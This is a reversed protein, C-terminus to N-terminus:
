LSPSFQRPPNVGSMRSPSPAPAIGMQQFTRSCSTRHTRHPGAEQLEGLGFDEVDLTKLLEIDLTTSLGTARRKEKISEIRSALRRTAKEFYTRVGRANGFKSKDEISEFYARSAQKAAYTLKYQYKVALGELIELMETPSYDEFTVYTTFRSNLGENSKIFKEIKDAYGAVIVIFSDRRNELVSVLTTIAERGYDVNSDSDVLAYIEDIFLVGGQAENCKAQVMQATEGVYKGVIDVRNAEVLKDTPIIGIAHYLKAIMRAVTTKGTGPSGKFVMHYSGRVTELGKDKRDRANIYVDILEYIQEKVTELGTLKELEILQSKLSESINSRCLIRIERNQALDYATSHESNQLNLNAGHSILLRVLNLYGFNAACILATNGRINQANLNVGRTNLLMNAIEIDGIASALILPTNNEPDRTNMDADERLFRQAAVMDKRLVAQLLSYDLLIKVIKASTAYSKNATNSESLIKRAWGLADLGHKSDAINIRANKSLLFRVLDFQMKKVSMILLTEGADNTTNPNIDLDIISKQIKSFDGRNFAELIDARLNPPPASPICQISRASAEPLKGQAKICRVASVTAVQFNGHDSTLSLRVTEVLEKFFSDGLTVGVDTVALGDQVSPAIAFSRSPLLLAETRQLFIKHLEMLPFRGERIFTNLCILEYRKKDIYLVNEYYIIGWKIFCSIMESSKEGFKAAADGETLETLVEIKTKIDATLSDPYEPVSGGIERYLRESIFFDGSLSVIGLHRL